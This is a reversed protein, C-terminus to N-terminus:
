INLVSVDGCPIGDESNLFTMSKSFHNICALGTDCTAEVSMAFLKFNIKKAMAVGSQLNKRDGSVLIMSNKLLNDADGLSGGAIKNKPQNRRDRSRRPIPIDQGITPQRVM